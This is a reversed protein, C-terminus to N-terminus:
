SSIYSYSNLSLFSFYFSESFKYIWLSVDNNRFYDTSGATNEALTHETKKEVTGSSLLFCM